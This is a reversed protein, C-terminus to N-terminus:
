LLEEKIVQEKKIKICRDGTIKPLQNRTIFPSPWNAFIEDIRM